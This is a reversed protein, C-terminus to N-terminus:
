RWTMCRRVTRVYVSAYPTACGNASAWTSITSYGVIRCITYKELSTGRPDDRLCYSRRGNVIGVSFASTSSESVFVALPSNILPYYLM